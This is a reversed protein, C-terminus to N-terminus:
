LVFEGVSNIFLGTRGTPITQEDIDVQRDEEAKLEKSLFELFWGKEGTTKYFKDQWDNEIFNSYIEQAMQMLANKQKRTPKKKYFEFLRVQLVKGAGHGHPYFVIMGLKVEIKWIKKVIKERAVKKKIRWYKKLGRSIRQRKERAVKKKIRWYKKLGRSIRQRRLKEKKSIRKATVM